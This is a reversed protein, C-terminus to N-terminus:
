TVIYRQNNGLPVGRGVGQTEHRIHKLILQPAASGFGAEAGKPLLPRAYAICLRQPPRNPLALL